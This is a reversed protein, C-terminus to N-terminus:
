PRSVYATKANELLRKSMLRGREEEIAELLGHAIAAQCDAPYTKVAAFFHDLLGPVQLLGRLVLAYIHQEQQHHEQEAADALLQLGSM